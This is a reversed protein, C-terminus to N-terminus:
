GVRGTSYPYPELSLVTRSVHRILAWPIGPEPRGFGPNVRSIPYVRTIRTPFGFGRPPRPPSNLQVTLLSTAGRAPVMEIKQGPRSTRGPGPVRSRGAQGPSRPSPRFKSTDLISIEGEPRGSSVRTSRGCGRARQRPDRDPPTRFERSTLRQEATQQHWGAM